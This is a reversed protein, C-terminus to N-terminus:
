VWIWLISAYNLSNEVNPFRDNPFKETFANKCEKFSSTKLYRTHLLSFFSQEVFYMIKLISCYSLQWQKYLKYNSIDITPVNLVINDCNLVLVFFYFV